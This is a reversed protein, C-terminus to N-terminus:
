PKHIVSRFFLYYISIGDNQGADVICIVFAFKIFAYTGGVSALPLRSGLAIGDGDTILGSPVTLESLKFPNTVVNRLVADGGLVIVGADFIFSAILKAVFDL